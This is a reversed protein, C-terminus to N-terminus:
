SENKQCSTLKTRFSISLCNPQPIMDVVVMSCFLYSYPFKTKLKDLTERIEPSGMDGNSWFKGNMVFNLLVCPTDRRAWTQTHIQIMHFSTKDLYCASLACWFAHLFHRGCICNINEIKEVRTM